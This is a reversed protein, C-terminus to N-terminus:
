CMWIHAHMFHAKGHSGCVCDLHRLFVCTIKECVWEEDTDGDELVWALAGGWQLGAWCDGGGTEQKRLRGGVPGGGRGLTRGPGAEGIGM